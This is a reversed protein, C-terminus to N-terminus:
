GLLRDAIGNIVAKDSQNAKEMLTYQLAMRFAHKVSAAKGEFFSACEAITVTTRPSLPMIVEGQIFAKRYDEIFSTLFGQSDSGDFAPVIRRIMEAEEGASMYDIQLFYNYRDMQAASQQQVSAAYLSTEDGQGTTNGNAVVRFWPHPNVIEGGNELIRLSGGELVPQFLFSTGGRIADAEDLQFTVPLRMAQPLIGYSFCTHQKGQDDVKVELSGILDMRELNDDLNVRINGQRTRADVQAIWTSKGTGTHGTLFVRKGSERAFLYAALKESKFFYHENVAPVYNNECEYEFCTIAFDLLPNEHEFVDQANRLVTRSEPFAGDESAKYTQPQAVQAQAKAKQQKLAAELTEIQTNFDKAQMILGNHQAVFESIDAIQGKTLSALANSAINVLTADGQLTVTAANTMVTSGQTTNATSATSTAAAGITAAVPTAPPNLSPINHAKRFGAWKDKQVIRSFHKSLLGEQASSLATKSASGGAVLIGTKVIAADVGMDVGTKSNSSPRCNGKYISKATRGLFNAPVDGKPACMALQNLTMMLADIHLYKKFSALPAYRVAIQNAGDGLYPSGKIATEWDTYSFNAEWIEQFCERLVAHRLDYPLHHISDFDTFDYAM